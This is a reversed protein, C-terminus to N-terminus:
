GIVSSHYGINPNRSPVPQTCSVLTQLDLVRDLPLRDVDLRFARIQRHPNPQRIDTEPEEVLLHAFVGVWVGPVEVIRWQDSTRELRGWPWGDPQVVIVHGRKTCRCDQVPDPHTKDVIRVLLEAM